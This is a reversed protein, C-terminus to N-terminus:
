VAEVRHVQSSQNECHNKIFELTKEAVLKKENDLTMVHYSDELKIMKKDTSSINNYVFEASKVSTLDDQVSHLLLIPTNVKKIRKRVFASVKLLEVVCLMPYCDLAGGSKEQMKAIKKRVAECKIGRTDTEPFLYFLKFVSFLCVPILFKFWPMAWGDLYLTTSLGIIGAVNDREQAVALALVAGLCLGSIYVKDYKSALEDFQNVTFNKWEQWTHGKLGEADECHGPLVPCFVDYGESSLMKGYQHMEFPSGTLGHLLLIATNSGNQFSFGKTSM